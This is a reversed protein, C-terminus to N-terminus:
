VIKSGKKQTTWKLIQQILTQGELSSFLPLNWNEKIRWRMVSQRETKKQYPEKYILIGRRQWCPTEALNIGHQFLKEHLEKTKLGKLIKAAESPKHGNKRYLWYAYANNHNRWLNLQRWSLYDIIKEQSCICVRSDFATPLAKKFTQALALSFTSSVLSALVSNIKEIRGDFPAKPFFLTNLEDSAVYVLTPNFDDKYLSKGSATLCQAFREDFPKQARIAESVAQFRRGDLRVFFPMNQPTKLQSFIENGSQNLSEENLYSEQM